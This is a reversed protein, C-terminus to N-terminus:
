IQLQPANTSLQSNIDSSDWLSPSPSPSPSSVILFCGTVKRDSPLFSIKKYNTHHSKLNGKETKSVLSSLLALLFSTVFCPYLFFFRTNFDGDLSPGGIPQATPAKSCAGAASWCMGEAGSRLIGEVEPCPVLDVDSSSRQGPYLIVMQGDCVWTMVSSIDDLSVAQNTYSQSWHCHLSM